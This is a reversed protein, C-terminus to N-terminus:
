TKWNHELYVLWMGTDEIARSWSVLLYCLNMINVHLEMQVVILLNNESKVLLLLSLNVSLCHTFPGVLSSWIIGKEIKRRM